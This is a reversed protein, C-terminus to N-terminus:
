NVRVKLFELYVKGNNSFFNIISGLNDIVFFHESLDCVPVNGEKLVLWGNSFTFETGEVDWICSEDAILSIYGQTVQQMFFSSLKNM